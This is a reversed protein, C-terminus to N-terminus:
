ATRNLSRFHAGICLDVSHKRALVSGRRSCPDHGHNDFSAVCTQIEDGM